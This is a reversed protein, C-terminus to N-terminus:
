FPFYQQHYFVKRLYLYILNLYYILTKYQPILSYAGGTYAPFNAQLIAHYGSLNYAVGNGNHPSGNVATGNVEYVTTAGHSYLQSQNTLGM